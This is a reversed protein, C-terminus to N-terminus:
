QNDYRNMRKVYFVNDSIRKYEVTDSDKLRHKCLCICSKEKVSDNSVFSFSYVRYGLLALIPNAYFLKTRYLLMCIIALILLFTVAGQLTNIRDLLLPIILTLFFNLSAEENEEVAEIDYGGHESHWKFVGFSVYFIGGLIVWVACISLVVILVANQQFFAFTSLTGGRGNKTVFSFNSVITLLALPSLSQVMLKFKM